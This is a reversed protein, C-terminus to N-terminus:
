GVVLEGEVWQFLCWKGGSARKLEDETLERPAPPPEAQEDRMGVSEETLNMADGVGCPPHSAGYGRCPPMRRHGNTALVDFFNTYRRPGLESMEGPQRMIAFDGNELGNREGRWM